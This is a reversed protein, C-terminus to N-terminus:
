FGELLQLTRWGTQLSDTAQSAFASCRLSDHGGQSGRTVGKHLLPLAVCVTTVGKHGGQSRRTVGKHLLPLDVCVTTVGKHGGQSGRTVGKRLLPLAVCVTTVGKHGGQSGRAFCLCLSASQRVTWLDGLTDYVEDQDMNEWDDPLYAKMVCQKQLVGGYRLLITGGPTLWPQGGPPTPQTAPSQPRNHTTSQASRAM